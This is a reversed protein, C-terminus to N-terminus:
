GFWSVQVQRVVNALRKACPDEHKIAEHMEGEAIIGFIKPLNTNNPGLVIPNNSVLSFFFFFVKIFLIHSSKSMLSWIDKRDVSFFALQSAEAPRCNQGIYSLFFVLSM